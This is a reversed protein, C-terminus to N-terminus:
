AFTDYLDEYAQVTDQINYRARVEEQAIRGMTRCRQPANVLSLIAEAMATDDGVPLIEGIGPTFIENLPTIDNSVIPLGAAMAELLTLPTDIKGTMDSIPFLFIDSAKLLAPFDEVEGLFHVNQHLNMQRITQQLNTKVSPDTPRVIRCAFIFHCNQCRTIVKPMVSLLREVSGMRSYEGSFLIIKADSSLGLRQHLLSNTPYNAFFDIDIGMNIRVINKINLKHLCNATHDSITVIRDAFFLKRAENINFNSTHLCPITQIIPKNQFHSLGALLSSTMPTPVFFFHTLDVEQKKSLLYLILRIKQQLSLKSSTYVPRWVIRTRIKPPSVGKVTMLHVRHRQVYQAIQWALNKSGENWPPVIPRTVLLIEM